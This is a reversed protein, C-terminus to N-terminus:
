KTVLQGHRDEARVFNARGNGRMRAVESWSSIKVWAMNSCDYTKSHSYGFECGDLNRDPQKAKPPMTKTPLTSSPEVEVIPVVFSLLSLSIRSGSSILVLHTGSSSTAINCSHLRHLESRTHISASNVAEIHSPTHWSSWPLVMSKVECDLPCLSRPQLWDATSRLVRALIVIKIQTRAAKIVAFCKFNACLPATPGEGAAGM